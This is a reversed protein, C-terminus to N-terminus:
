RMRLDETEKIGVLDKEIKGTAKEVNTMHGTEIRLNEEIM